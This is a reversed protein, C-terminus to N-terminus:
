GIESTLSLASCLREAWAQQGSTSGLHDNRVEILLHAIGRREGHIPITYDSIDSVAYPENFAVHVSQDLLDLSRKTAQALRNDRNYLLGLDWPRDFGDFRPTFSHVSVLLPLNPEASRRDLIGSICDHYPHHIERHRNQRDFESLDSNRPVITGDSAAPIFEPSDPPRNCDIVLRSFNQLVLVADLMESMLLALGAAGIDWAIHREMNERSLGLDGLSRPIAQGAHECTLVIRSTGHQNLVDVPVMDDDSLLPRLSAQTDGGFQDM